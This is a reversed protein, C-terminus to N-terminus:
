EEFKHVVLGRPTIEVPHVDEDNKTERMKRITLTRSYKGGLTEYNIHIIGDCIFESVTDRSLQGEVTQSILLSTVGDRIDRLDNIFTYMFRKISIETLDTVKSYTTPTNISLTSLSDIVLRKVSNKKALSIIEFATTEKISNAPISLIKVKNAKELKDFEWGFQLAQSKLSQEREEFSVYLGNENFQTAGNYLFQLAFITKSTGPTGSLLVIKGKPFGGEVLKDFGKIGTKVRDM